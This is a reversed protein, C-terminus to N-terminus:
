KKGRRDGRYLYFAAGSGWVRAAGDLTFCPKKEQMMV